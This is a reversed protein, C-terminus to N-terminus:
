VRWFEWQTIRAMTPHGEQGGGCVFVADEESLEDGAEAGMLGVECIVLRGDGFCMFGKPGDEAYRADPGSKTWKRTEGSPHQLVFYTSSMDDRAPVGGLVWSSDAFGGCVVGTETEVLLVSQQGGFLWRPLIMEATSRFWGGVLLEPSPGRHLGLYNGRAVFKPNKVPIKWEVLQALHWAL